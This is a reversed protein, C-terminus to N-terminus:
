IHYIYSSKEQQLLGQVYTKLLKGTCAIFAKSTPFTAEAMQLRPALHFHTAM